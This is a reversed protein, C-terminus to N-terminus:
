RPSNPNLRAYLVKVIFLGDPLPKGKKHAAAAAPVNVGKAACV